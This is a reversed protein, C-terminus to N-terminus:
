FVILRKQAVELLANPSGLHPSRDGDISLQHQEVPLKAAFNQEPLLLLAPADAAGATCVRTRYRRGAMRVESGLLDVWLSM